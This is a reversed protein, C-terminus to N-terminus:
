AAKRPILLEVTIATSTGGIATIEAYVRDFPGFWDLTESHDIQDSQTEGMASGANITGKTADAGPGMPTWNGGISEYGWLRVTTTMTGSGATSRVVIVTHELADFTTAIGSLDVGASSGSPPSNTATAADVLRILNHRATQGIFGTAM